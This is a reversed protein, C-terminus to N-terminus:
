MTVYYQDDEPDYTWGKQSKAYLKSAPVFRGIDAHNEGDYYLTARRASRRYGLFGQVEEYASGLHLIAEQGICMPWVHPWFRSNIIFSDEEVGNWSGRLKKFGFGEATARAEFLQPNIGADLAFIVYQEPSSSSWVGGEPSALEGAAHPLDFPVM